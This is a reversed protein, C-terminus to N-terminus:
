AEKTPREGVVISVEVPAGGRIIHATITKGVQDPDLKAFVDRVDGIPTEGLAILVDGIIVGARDAPSDAEVSVIIVGGADALQLSQVLSNPLRVPQMGVGLYGRAIRGTQTLQGVVRQITATPIALAMNRPGTTSMGVVRGETDILAGGSFGPYLTLDPRVFQDIQGGYWSRWSGSLVSIIGM